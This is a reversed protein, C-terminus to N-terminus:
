QTMAGSYTIREANPGTLTMHLIGQTVSFAVDTPAKTLHWQPAGLVGSEPVVYYYLAPGSGRNEFSLIAARVVGSPQRFNLVLVPSATSRPRAGSLADAVTDHLRFREAKGVLKSVHLSILPAEDTLFTQARYIQLFALQQNFLALSIAGIAMGLLIALSLEILTFGRHRSPVPHKM